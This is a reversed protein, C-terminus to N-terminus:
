KNENLRFLIVGAIGTRTKITIKITNGILEQRYRLNIDKGVQRTSKENNELMRGIILINNGVM